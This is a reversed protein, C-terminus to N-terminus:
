NVCKKDTPEDVYGDCDNDLGDHVIECECPGGQPATECRVMPNCAVTDCGLFVAAEGAACSTMPACIDDRCCRHAQFDTRCEYCGEDIKGNCDNDINDGCLEKGGNSPLCTPPILEFIATATTNSQIVVDGTQRSEGDILWHHFVSLADPYARLEVFHGTPYTEECDYGCKIGEGYVLGGGSGTRTVTLQYALPEPTPTPAAAPEFIATLITDGTMQVPGTYPEGNVRWAVFPSGADAIAKFHRVEGPGGHVQCTKQCVLDLSEVQGAGQIEITLGCSGSQAVLKDMGFGGITLGCGILLFPLWKARRSKRRILATSLLLLAIGLALLLGSGPEPVAPTPTPTIISQCFIITAVTPNNVDFEGRATEQAPLKVSGLYYLFFILCLSVSGKKTIQGAIQKLM